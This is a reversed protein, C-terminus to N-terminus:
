RLAILLRLRDVDVETYQRYGNMTRAAMPLMGHREYFRISHATTGLRKALTGIRM